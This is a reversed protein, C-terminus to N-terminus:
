RCTIRFFVATCTMPPPPNGGGSGGSPPPPPPPRVTSPDEAAERESHRGTGGTQIPSRDDLSWGFATAPASGLTLQTVVLLPLLSIRYTM